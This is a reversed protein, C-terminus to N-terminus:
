GLHKYCTRCHMLHLSSLRKKGLLCPVFCFRYQLKSMLAVKRINITCIKIFLSTNILMTKPQPFIKAMCDHNFPSWMSIYIVLKTSKMTLKALSSLELLQNWLKLLVMDWQLNSSLDIYKTYSALKTKKNYSGSLRKIKLKRCPM